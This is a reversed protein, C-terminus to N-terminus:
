GSFIVYGQCHAASFYWGVITCQAFMLKIFCPSARVPNSGVGSLLRMIVLGVKNCSFENRKTKRM